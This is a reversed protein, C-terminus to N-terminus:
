ARRRAYVTCALRRTWPTFRWRTAPQLPAVSQRFIAFPKAVGAFHCHSARAPRVACRWSAAGAGGGHIRKKRGRQRLASPQAKRRPPALLDRERLVRRPPRARPASRAGPRGIWTRRHAPRDGRPWAPRWAIRAGPPLPLFGCGKAAKRGRPPDAPRARAPVPHHGPHCRRASWLCRQSVLRGHLAAGVQGVQLQVGDDVVLHAIPAAAQRACTTRSTLGKESSMGARSRGPECPM